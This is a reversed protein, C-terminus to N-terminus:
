GSAWPPLTTLTIRTSKRPKSVRPSIVTSTAAVSPAAARTTGTSRFSSSHPESTSGRDELVTGDRDGAGQQHERRVQEEHAVVLGAAPERSSEDGADGHDERPCGAALLGHM